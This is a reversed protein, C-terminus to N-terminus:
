RRGGEMRAHQENAAAREWTAPEGPRPTSRRSRWAGVAVASPAGAGVGVPRRAGGPRKGREGVVPLCPRRGAKGRHRRRAAGCCAARGCAGAPACSPRWVVYLVASWPLGYGGAEPSNAPIPAEDVPETERRREAKSPHGPRQRRGTVVDDPSSEGSSSVEAAPSGGAEKPRRPPRLRAREDRGTPQRRTACAAGLAHGQDVQRQAHALARPRKM